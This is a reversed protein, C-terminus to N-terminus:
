NQLTLMSFRNLCYNKILVNSKSVDRKKHHSFRRMPLSNKSWAQDSAVDTQTRGSDERFCRFAATATEAPKRAEPSPPSHRPKQVGELAPNVTTAAPVM